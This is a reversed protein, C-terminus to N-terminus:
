HEKRLKGTAETDIDLTDPKLIVKYVKKAMELSVLGSKVDARVAAPDREEPRGVGAGGGSLTVLHDGCQLEVPIHPQTINIRQGGKLVYAQNLPTAQGGQSGPAQTSFGSWPGGISSCEGGENVGEWVIGPAGRWKGAGHSDTRFEYRTIDWPFRAMEEEADTKGVVGLTGM